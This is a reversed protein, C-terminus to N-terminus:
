RTICHYCQSSHCLTPKANYKLVLTKCKRENERKGNGRKEKTGKIGNGGKKGKEKLRVGSQMALAPTMNVGQAKCRASLMEGKQLPIAHSGNCFSQARGTRQTADYIM